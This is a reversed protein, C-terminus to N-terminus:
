CCPLPWVWIRDTWGGSESAVSLDGIGAGAARVASVLAALEADPTMVRAIGEAIEVTLAGDERRRIEISTIPRHRCRAIQHPLESPLADARLRVARDRPRNPLESLRRVLPEIAAPAIALHLGGYDKERGIFIFAVLEVTDGPM